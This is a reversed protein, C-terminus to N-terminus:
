KRCLLVMRPAEPQYAEAAWGGWSEEVIFGVREALASIEAMAYVRISHRYSKQAETPDTYCAIVRGTTWDFRREVTLKGGNPLILRERECFHTLLYERNMLDLVFWGGNILANYVSKLTALDGSENFYGFSTNISLVADYSMVSLFSRMDGIIFEANVREAAALRRAIAILEASRDLGTVQYGGHALEVSYRGPGCALDMVWCGRELGLRDGLVQVVQRADRRNRLFTGNVDLQESTFFSLAKDWWEDSEYTVM